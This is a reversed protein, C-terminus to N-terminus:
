VLPDAISSDAIRATKSSTMASAACYRNDYSACLAKASKTALATGGAGGASVLCMGTALLSLSTLLCCAWDTRVQHGAKKRTVKQIALCNRIALKTERSM